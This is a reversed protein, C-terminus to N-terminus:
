NAHAIWYQQKRSHTGARAATARAAATSRDVGCSQAIRLIVGPTGPISPTPPPPPAPLVTIIHTTIIAIPITISTTPFSIPPYMANISPRIALRHPHSKVSCFQPLTHPQHTPDSPNITNLIRSYTCYFFSLMLIPSCCRPTELRISCLTHISVSTVLEVLSDSPIVSIPM